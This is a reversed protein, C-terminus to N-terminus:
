GNDQPIDLMNDQMIDQMIDPVLAIHSRDVPSKIAIRCVRDLSRNEGNTRPLDIKRALV